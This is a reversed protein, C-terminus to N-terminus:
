TGYKGESVQLFLNEANKKDEADVASLIIYEYINLAEAIRDLSVYARALLFRAQIDGKEIRLFQELLNVAELAEEFEFVLIVALAYLAPTYRPNIQLARRYGTEAQKLYVERSDSDPMALAMQGACIARNYLLATHHPYFGIATDFAEIAMGWMQYDMYKLGLLRWYTGEKQVLELTKELEAEVLRIDKKIEGISKAEDGELSALDEALKHRLNERACSVLPILMISMLACFCFFHFHSEQYRLNNGYFPKRKQAIERM